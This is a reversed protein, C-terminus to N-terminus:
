GKSLEGGLHELVAEAADRTMGPLSALEEVTAERIKKMSGFAKLLEKKRKPGIGPVDDLRSHAAAKRHLKRHYTIAFRHAEDRVRQLLFLGQSGRPLRIWEERGEECLLEEEKALGYTRIHEVGLSRMAERAYALQGKGGDIILLDPFLAFKPDAGAGGYEEANEAVLGEELQKVRGEMAAEREALGRKFRRTVAERMNYFDNNQDVKMKFRRYDEKKPKGGEFVVMSAVVESGQTHSIDFCEIRFPLKELKLHAQLEEMAGETAAVEQERQTYRETMGEQANKAVMDVLERKEGRQPRRLTVKSGRRQSLWEELVEAEEPDESVLIEKPIFTTQNYHQEVFAAIIEPGTLEEAGTMIFQDRGILKGKRVFFVQVCAEDHRRAYAIADLDVVEQVIIKQKETVKEIAILQDRLEAAREFELNEAAEEM